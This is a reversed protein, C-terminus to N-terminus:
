FIFILSDELTFNYDEGITLIKFQSKLRLSCVKCNPSRVKSEPKDPNCAQDPKHINDVPSVLLSEVCTAVRVSNNNGTKGVNIM